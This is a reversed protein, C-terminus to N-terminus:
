DEAKASYEMAKRNKGKNMAAEAADGYFTSANKADGQESYIGACLALVEFDELVLAEDATDPKPAYISEVVLLGLKLKDAAVLEGGFFKLLLCGAAGRGKM